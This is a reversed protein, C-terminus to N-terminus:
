CEVNEHENGYDGGIEEGYVGESVRGSIAFIEREMAGVLVNGEYRLLNRQNEALDIDRLLLKSLHLLLNKAILADIEGSGVDSVLESEKKLAM